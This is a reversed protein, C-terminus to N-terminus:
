GALLALPVVETWDLNSSYISLWTSDTTKSVEELTELVKAATENDAKTVIEAVTNSFDQADDTTGEQQNKAAEITQQIMTDKVDDNIIEM